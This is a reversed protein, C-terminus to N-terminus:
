FFEVWGSLSALHFGKSLPFFLGKLSLLVKLGHWTIQFDEVSNDVVFNIWCGCFRHLGLLLLSSFCVIPM